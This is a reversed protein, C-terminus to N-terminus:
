YNQRSLKARHFFNVKSLNWHKFVGPTKNTSILGHFRKEILHETEPMFSDVGCVCLLTPQVDLLASSSIENTFTSSTRPFLKPFCPPGFISGAVPTVCAALAGLRTFWNSNRWELFFSHGSQHSPGRGPARRCFKPKSSFFPKLTKNSNKSDKKRNKRSHFEQSFPFFFGIVACGTSTHTGLNRSPDATHRSVWAIGFGFDKGALNKWSESGSRSAYHM